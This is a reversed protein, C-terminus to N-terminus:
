LTIRLGTSFLHANFAEFRFLQENFDYYRWGSIWGLRKTIPVVLDAQPQYFRTPRSGQAVVLSGGFDLKANRILALDVYGGAQQGNQDYRSTDLTFFPPLIIFTDSALTSHMYDLAVSFRKGGAPALLVSLSVERSRYALNLGTENDYNRLINVTGSVTAWPRPRWRGRVKVRQYDLLSTRFLAATGSSIEASGYLTLNLPLRVDVGALAINQRQKATDFSAPDGTDGTLVDSWIKRYGGRLTIRPHVDYMADVQYRNYDNTFLLPIATATNITSPLASGLLGVVGTQAQNLLSFTSNHFRDTYYSQVVRLRNLPRLTLSATGSPHPRLANATATVTQGTMQALSSSFLFLGAAAENLRLDLSPQNFSFEGSLDIWKYPRVVASGRTFFSNVTAQYQQDVTDLHTVVGLIPTRLDGPNPAGSGYFIRTNETFHSGGAEVTFNAKAFNIHAGGRFLDVADDLRRNSVYENGPGVWSLYGPGTGASRSYAFFPAFRRNPLVDLNVDFLRRHIDYKNESDSWRLGSELLPNAFSPIDNFYAINRYQFGLEYVGEKRADFRLTSSPEGGWSNMQLDMRDAWAPRPSRFSLTADFLKPGAGLNVISRYMSRNGDEGAVWRYGLDITGTVTQDPAGASAPAAAPAAPAAQQSQPAGPTPQPPEQGGLSPALIGAVVLALVFAFSRREPRM